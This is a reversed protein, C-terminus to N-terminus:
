FPTVHWRSACFRAMNTETPPQLYRLRQTWERRPGSAIALTPSLGMWFNSDTSYDANSGTWTDATPSGTVDFRLVTDAGGATTKAVLGGGIGNRSGCAEALHRIIRNGKHSDFGLFM